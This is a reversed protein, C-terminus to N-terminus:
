VTFSSFTLVGDFLCFIVSKSNKKNTEFFEKLFIGDFDFM